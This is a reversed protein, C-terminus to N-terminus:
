ENTRSRATKLTADLLEEPSSRRRAIVLFNFAFLRPWIRAM